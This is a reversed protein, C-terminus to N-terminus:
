NEAFIVYGVNHLGRCSFWKYQSALRILFEGMNPYTEYLVVGDITQKLPIKEELEDKSIVQYEIEITAM